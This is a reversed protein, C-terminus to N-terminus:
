WGLLSHRAGLGSSVIGVEHVSCSPNDLHHDRETDGIYYTREHKTGWFQVVM